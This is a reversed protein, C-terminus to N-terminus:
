DQNQTLWGMLQTFPIVQNFSVGCEGERAWRVVGHVPAFGELALVVDAGEGLSGDYELRVGGQSIDRATVWYVTAGARLTGLREVEVRPMRPRWGNDMVPPNALTEVVDIVTDFEIGANTEEVWVVRGPIQQNTKLEVAVQDGLKLPSYIHAMLGGASINRILCLERRGEVVLTGVRLITLHRQDRRREPPRPAERSFSFSTEEVEQRSMHM